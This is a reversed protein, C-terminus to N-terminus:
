AINSSLIHWETGDCGLTVVDYQADVTALTAAGDITEAGNGDLTIANVSADVKKITIIKGTSSAVAPLTLTAVGLAVDVVYITHAATPALTETYPGSADGTIAVFAQNATVAANLTGATALSITSDDLKGQVWTGIEIQDAPADTFFAGQSKNKRSNVRRGANFPVFVKKPNSGALNNHAQRKEDTYFQM